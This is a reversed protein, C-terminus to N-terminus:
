GGVTHPSYFLYTHRGARKAEYMAHDAANLISEVTDGHQPFLAIGISVGVEVQCTGLDFPRGIAAILKEAVRAAGDAGAIRPLLVTFEDGALRAVTDSERVSDLCRAAVMKLLSDGADHGLTDNVEKFRDLDLFLLAGSQGERRALALTRGLRDFLLGRNPLDTLMDFNAMHEIRAEAAKRATIDELISVFHNISGDAGRLPTVTQSVMYRSGDRRANIVEGQWTEGAQLTAWLHTYFAADHVGSKLLKPTAGVLEDEAFCSLATFARNVWLIRGAADTIFAANSATALATEFLVLWEQQLAAELSTAFRGAIATLRVFVDSAEFLRADDGYLALVGWVDGRLTLPVLMATAAGTNDTGGTCATCASSGPDFMRAQGSSMAADVPGCAGKGDRWRQCERRVHEVFGATSGDRAAVALMRLEGNRGALGVGAAALHFLPLMGECFMQTIAPANMKRSLLMANTQRFLAEIQEDRRHETVDKAYVAISEV